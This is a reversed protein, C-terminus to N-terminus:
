LLNWRDLYSPEYGASFIQFLITAPNSVIKRKGAIQLLIPLSAIKLTLNKQTIIGNAVKRGHTEDMLLYNAKNEIASVIAAAEGAHLGIKQTLHNYSQISKVQVKKIWNCSEAQNKTHGKFESYVQEPVLVDGFLGRLVVLHDVAALYIIPSTNSIVIM